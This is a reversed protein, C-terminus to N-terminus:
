IDSGETIVDFKFDVGYEDKGFEMESVKKNFIVKKLRSDIIEGKEDKEYGYVAVAEPRSGPYYGPVQEPSLEYIRYIADWPTDLLIEKKPTEGMMSFTEAIYDAVAGASVPEPDIAEGDILRMIRDVSDDDLFKVVAVRLMNWTDYVVGHFQNTFGESKDGSEIVYFNYDRKKM